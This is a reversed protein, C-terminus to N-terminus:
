LNYKHKYFVDRPLNIITQLFLFSILNASYFVSPEFFAFVALPVFYKFNKVLALLSIFLALLGLIGFRLLNEIWWNHSTSAGLLAYRSSLDLMAYELPNFINLIAYELSSMWVAGRTNIFATWLSGNDYKYLVYTIPNYYVFITCIIILIALKKTNSLNFFIKLYIPILAFFGTRSRLLILIASGFTAGIVKGYQANKNNCAVFIYTAGFILSALYNQGSLKIKAVIDFINGINSFIMLTFFILLVCFINISRVNFEWFPRGFCIIIILLFSPRIDAGSIIIDLLFFQLVVVGCIYAYLTKRKPILLLMLTVLFLYLIINLTNVPFSIQVFYNKLIPVSLALLLSVEATIRFFSNPKLRM